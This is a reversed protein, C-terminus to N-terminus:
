ALGRNQYENIFTSYGKDDIEEHIETHCNSCLLVCKDVELKMKDISYNRGGITFDKEDPNIHHFQLANMSKNYGCCQCNGGKYEVLEKKRKKRHNHVHTVMSAKREEISQTQGKIEIFERVKRHNVGLIKGVKKLNGLEDYLRKIENIFEPNDFKLESNSKNLNFIRCVRKIKDYSVNSTSEFIYKYTKGIKKLEVIKDVVGKDINSIFTNDDHKFNEHIGGMGEKQTHYSVTSLACGLLKSIEKLSKGEKRLKIISGKLENKGM